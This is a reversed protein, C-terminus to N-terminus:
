NAVLLAWVSGPEDKTFLIGNQDLSQAINIFLRQTEDTLAQYLKLAALGRLPDSLLASMNDYTAAMANINNIVQLHFPELPLPVPTQSLEKALAIHDKKIISLETALNVNTSTAARGIAYITRDYSAYPHHALVEVVKNGYTKLAQESNDSLTLDNDTYTPAARELSIQSAAEAVLKDQTPIDSGLGQSKADAVRVLLTRAVTDTVSSSQAANLLNQLSDGSSIQPQTASPGEIKELATRWDEGGATLQAQNEVSLAPARAPTGTIYQAGVVLGGSLLISGVIVSFQASPLYQLVNM